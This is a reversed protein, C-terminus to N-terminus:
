RKTLINEFKKYMYESDFQNKVFTMIKNSSEQLQKQNKLEIICDKLSDYNYQKFSYSYDEPFYEDMGGFSPYISPVGCISAESLLRPHGEYMKTATLVAKSNRIQEVVKENSLEGTFEINKNIYKSTLETYLEGDGLVKLSLDNFGVDSWAEILEEIGKSETLRGAFVVYNSDPKYTNNSHLKLSIPNYFIEIKSEQIGLNILYNKHFDTFVLITFPYSKLIKFYKKSYIILLFSKVFSEEYYKNFIKSKKKTLSCAPCFQKNKLHNKILWYRACDYRFNHLKLVTKVKHSKLIKFIGLNAGFWTNHVYAFDPKFDTLMQDLIKNSSINSNTFFAFLDLINIKKSNNFELYQIEYNKRLFDLEDIINTDEGGSIKYKTNIVLIKKM